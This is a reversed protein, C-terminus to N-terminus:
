EKWLDGWEAKRAQRFAERDSRTVTRTEIHGEPTCLMLQIHGRHTRPHRVIRAGAAAPKVRGAILYSFKEDEYGLAGGKLQRHESTRELRQSFHCWDHNAALPCEARHPCPALIEAGSGIMTSRAAHIASFGRPTGPEVIVLFQRACSWAKRVVADAAAPALEGLLYSIVVLDHQACSFGSRLDHKLWQAERVAPAASGSALNKGLHLWQEDAEILTARELRSFSEAAAFLATGPGAGLDLLTSIQAQPARSEIECFVRRNVAYTAPLRVALYAARQADTVMAPASFDAAKYRETLQAAAQVLRRREVKEIESQIADLLHQPLRM